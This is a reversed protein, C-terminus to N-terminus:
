YEIIRPMEDDNVGPLWVPAILLDIGVDVIYECLDLIRRLPYSPEGAMRRPHIGFDEPRLILKVGYRREMEGLEEYFRRWSVARVGRPRRGRKHPEYRQIGLPPWRRGAGISKAYEIIRPMEDDNVGPLWVPAILLDIGVDVIYECLELIRRLPYNSAGVMRRAIGEDLAHISVNLRDMGAEAMEGILEEDLLAGNTQMSITEIGEIDALGQILEILRPYTAPEGVTDIHAEIHERGKYEVVRDVWELLPDLAVVYEALRSRSRPGADTSCFICSLPCLTTPRIQLLNTGRDIVGFAICGMLPCDVEDGIRVLNVDRVGRKCSPPLGKRGKVM